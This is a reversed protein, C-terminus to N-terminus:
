WFKMTYSRVSPRELYQELTLDSTSLQTWIPFTFGASIPLRLIQELNRSMCALYAYKLVKLRRFCCFPRFFFSYPLQYDVPMMYCFTM